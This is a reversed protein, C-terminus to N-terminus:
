TVFSLNRREKQQNRHGSQLVDNLSGGMRVWSNFVMGDFAPTFRLVEAVLQLAPGTEGERFHFNAARMAIQPSNPALELSRRFCYQASDSMAQRLWLTASTLGGTLFPWTWRWHRGSSISPAMRGRRIVPGFSGIDRIRLPRRRRPLFRDMALGARLWCGPLRSEMCVPCAYRFQLVPLSTQSAM